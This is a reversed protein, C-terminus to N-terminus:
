KRGQRGQLGAWPTVMLPHRYPQRVSAVCTVSQHGTKKDGAGRRQEMEPREGTRGLQSAGPPRDEQVLEAPAGTHM